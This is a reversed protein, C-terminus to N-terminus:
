GLASAFIIPLTSGTSDLAEIDAGADMLAKAMPRNNNMVAHM